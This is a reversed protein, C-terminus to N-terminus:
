VVQFLLNSSALTLFDFGLRMKQSKRNPSFARVQSFPTKMSELGGKSNNQTSEMTSKQYPVFQLLNTPSSHIFISFDLMKQAFDRMPVPVLFHYWYGHHLPCTTGTGSLSTCIGVPLSPNTGTGTLTTGTGISGAVKFQCIKVGNLKTIM